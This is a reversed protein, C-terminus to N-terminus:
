EIFVCTMFYGNLSELEQNNCADIFEYISYILVDEIIDDDYKLEKRIQILVTSLNEFTKNKIADCVGKANNAEVSILIIKQNM